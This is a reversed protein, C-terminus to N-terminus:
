MTDKYVYDVIAHPYMSSWLDIAADARDEDICVELLVPNGENDLRYVHFM